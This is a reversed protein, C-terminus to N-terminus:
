AMVAEKWIRELENNVYGGKMKRCMTKTELFIDNFLSCM